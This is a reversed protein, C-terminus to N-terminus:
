RTRTWSPTRKELFSRVGEKGDASARAAAIRAATGAIMDQDIAGHAVSRILEKSAAIAAPSAALLHALLAAVGADLEGAAAVRHVVGIRM